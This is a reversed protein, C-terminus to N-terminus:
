ALKVATGYALIEIVRKKGDTAIRHEFRCNIVADGGLSACRKGLVEKVEDFAKDISASSFFGEKNDGLAFITDIVTYNQKLDGTTIIM